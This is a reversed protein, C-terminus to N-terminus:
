LRGRGQGIRTQEMEKEALLHMSVVCSAKEGVRPSRYCRRISMRELRTFCSPFLVLEECRSRHSAFAVRCVFRYVYQTARLSIRYCVQSRMSM